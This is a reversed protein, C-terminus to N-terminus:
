KRAAHQVKPKDGKKASKAETKHQDAPKGPEPKATEPKAQKKAEAEDAKKAAEAAKAQKAEFEQISKERIDQAHALDKADVVALCYYGRHKDGGIQFQKNKVIKADAWKQNLNEAYWQRLHGRTCVDGLAKRADAIAKRVKADKETNLLRDIVSTVAKKTTEETTSAANTTENTNM